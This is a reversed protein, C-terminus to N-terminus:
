FDERHCFIQDKPVEDHLASEFGDVEELLDYYEELGYDKAVKMLADEAPGGEFVSCNGSAFGFSVMDQGFVRLETIIGVSKKSLEVILDQLAKSQKGAVRDFEKKTTLIVFSSSSSNSVFGNRTKM